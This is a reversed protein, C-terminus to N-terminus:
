ADLAGKADDKEDLHQVDYFSYVLVGSESVQVEVLGRVAMQELVESVTESDFALEAVAEVVTLKGGRREALKILEAELTQRRLRDKRHRLDAEARERGASASWWLYLGGAAPLVVAILFTIVLILGGGPRARFFGFLMFLAVLLLASGLIRQAM